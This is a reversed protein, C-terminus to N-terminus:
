NEYLTEPAIDIEGNDWVPVGYEISVANFLKKDKLRTYVGKDLLRSFDFVKEVGDNFLIQLKYNELAKIETVKLLKPKEEAYAIGNEIYM